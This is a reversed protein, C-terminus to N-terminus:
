VDLGTSELVLVGKERDHDRLVLRSDDEMMGAFQVEDGHGVGMYPSGRYGDELEQLFGEKDGQVSGLGWEM